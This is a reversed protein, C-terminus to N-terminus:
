KKFVSTIIVPITWFLYFLILTLPKIGIGAFVLLISAALGIISGLIAFVTNTKYTSRLKDLMIFSRLYNHIGSFGILIGESSEEVRDIDKIPKHIVNIPYNTGSLNADILRTDLGPVNTRVGCCIGADYFGKLVDEFKRNMTYKIYFKASLVHESGTVLYLISTLSRMESEDNDDVPADIDFMRLYNANGVLVDTGDVTLHLGDKSSELVMVEGAVVMDQLSSAFVHSLPGGLKNFIQAMYVIIKEISINNYTKISTVKLAKPPFVATDDFSIVGANELKDCAAEGIISHHLKSAKTSTIFYPLSTAILLTVPVSFFMVSVGATVASYVSSEFFLFSVISTLVGLAVTLYTIVNCGSVAVPVTYTNKVFDSIFNAKTVCLVDSDEDLYKAFASNEESLSDLKVATFKPSSHSAMAFAKFRTYAKVFSNFSLLLLIICGAFCFTVYELSNYAFICSYVTHIVCVAVSVVAVAEPSSKKIALKRIGRAIGDLNFLICFALMQLSVMSYVKGYYGPKMMHSFPLGSAHGCELWICLATFLLTLVVSISSVIASHRFSKFLDKNQVTDTYELEYKYINESYTEETFNGVTDTEETFCERDDKKDVSSSIDDSKLIKLLQTLDYNRTSNQESSEAGSEFVKVDDDENKLTEEADDDKDESVNEIASGDSDSYVENTDDPSIEDKAYSNLANDRLMRIKEDIKDDSSKCANETTPVNESLEKKVTKSTSEEGSSDFVKGFKNEM